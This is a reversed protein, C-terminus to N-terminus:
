KTINLKSKLYNSFIKDRTFKSAYTLSRIENLMATYYVFTDYLKVFIVYDRKARDLPELKYRAGIPMFSRGVHLQQEPQVFKSYRTKNAVQGQILLKPKPKLWKTSSTLDINDLKREDLSPDFRPDTTIEYVINGNTQDIFPSRLKRLVDITIQPLIEAMESSSQREINWKDDILQKERMKAAIFTSNKTNVQDRLSVYMNNDLQKALKLILSQNEITDDIGIIFTDLLCLLHNIKVIIEKVNEYKTTKRKLRQSETYTEYWVQGVASAYMELYQRMHVLNLQLDEIELQGGPVLMDEIDPLWNYRTDNKVRSNNNVEKLELTGLQIETIKKLIFLSKLANTVETYHDVNTINTIQIDVKANLRKLEDVAEKASQENDSTKSTISFGLLASEGFNDPFFLRTHRAKKFSGPNNAAIYRKAAQKSLEFSTPMLRVTKKQLPASGHIPTGRARRSFKTDQISSSSSSPLWSQQNGSWPQQNNAFLPAQRQDDIIGQDNAAATVDSDYDNGYVFEDYLGVASTPKTTAVHRKTKSASASTSAGYGLLISQDATLLQRCPETWSPLTRSLVPNDPFLLDNDDDKNSEFSDFTDLESFRRVRQANSDNPACNAANMSHQRRQAAVAAVASVDFLLVLSAITSLSVLSAVLPLRKHTTSVIFANCNFKHSRGNKGEACSRLNQPFCLAESQSELNTQSSM